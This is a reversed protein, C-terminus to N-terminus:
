NRLIIGGNAGMRKMHEDVMKRFETETTLTGETPIRLESKKLPRTEIKVATLVREGDNIDVQLVTGPLATFKEPGLAPPLETTFWAVIPQKSEESFFSAQRCTYGLIVKTDAGFKWPAIKVSDEMRFKKGMFDQVAVRRGEAYNFYVSMNPRRLRMRMGGGNDFEDEEDEAVHTYFSEQNRFFLLDKHVNFEPMMDKMAQRDPPLRRHMNVKVEYTIVGEKEQSFVFQCTVLMTLIGAILTIRKM